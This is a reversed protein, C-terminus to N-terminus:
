LLVSLAAWSAAAFVQGITAAYLPILAIWSRDKRRMWSRVWRTTPIKRIWPEQRRIAREGVVAVAIAGGGILAKQTVLGMEAGLQQMMGRMMPNGELQLDAGVGGLTLLTDALAAAAYLTVGCGLKHRRLFSPGLDHAQSGRFNDPSALTM